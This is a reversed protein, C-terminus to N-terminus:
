DEAPQSSIGDGQCYEAFIDHPVGCTTLGLNDTVFMAHKRPGQFMMNQISKRKKFKVDTSGKNSARRGSGSNLDSQRNSNREVNGKKNDSGCTRGTQIM